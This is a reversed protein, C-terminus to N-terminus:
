HHRDNVFSCFLNPLNGSIWLYKLKYLLREHWVKDLAKSIDLFNGRVEPSTNTILIKM